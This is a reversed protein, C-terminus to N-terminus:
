EVKIAEVGAEKESTTPTITLTGKWEGSGAGRHSCSTKSSKTDFAAEVSGATTNNGAHASTAIECTDGVRGIITECEFQWGGKLLRERVESGEMYLEATWESIPTVLLVQKCFRSGKGEIKGEVGECFELGEVKLGQSISSAGGSKIVGKGAARCAIGLPVGLEYKTDVIQLKSTEVNVNVSTTVKKFVGAKKVYWEPSALASSAAVASLAFIAILAAFVTKSM